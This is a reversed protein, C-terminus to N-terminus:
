SKINLIDIKNGDLDVLVPHELNRKTENKLKKLYDSIRREGIVDYFLRIDSLDAEEGGSNIRDFAEKATFRDSFSIQIQLISEHYVDEGTLYIMAMESNLTIESYASTDISGYCTKITKKM